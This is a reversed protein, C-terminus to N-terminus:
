EGDKSTFVKLLSQGKLVSILKTNGYRNVIPLLIIKDCFIKFETVVSNNMEFRSCFYLPAVYVLNKEM